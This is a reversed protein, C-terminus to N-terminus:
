DTDDDPQDGVEQAVVVVDPSLAELQRRQRKVSQCYVVTL